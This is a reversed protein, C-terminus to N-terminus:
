MPMAAPWSGHRHRQGGRRRGAEDTVRQDQGFYFYGLIVVMGLQDARDVIRSM